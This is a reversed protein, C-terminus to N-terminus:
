PHPPGTILRIVSGAIDDPTHGDDTRYWRSVWICMGLLLRTVVQPDDQELTGDDMAAAVAGAWIEEYRRSFDQWRQYVDPPLGAGGYFVTMYRRMRVAADVHVRILAHLNERPGTRASTVASAQEFLDRTSREFLIGLLDDKTPVTRYLTARSVSLKEATGGISVNDFGGEAFLEAVADAVAAPDIERRPRGRPRGSATRGAGSGKPM